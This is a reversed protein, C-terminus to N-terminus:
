LQNFPSSHNRPPGAGKSSNSGSSVNATDSLCSVLFELDDKNKPGNHLLAIEVKLIRYATVWDLAFYDSLLTDNSGNSLNIVHSFLEFQFFFRFISHLRAAKIWSGADSSSFILDIEKKWVDM